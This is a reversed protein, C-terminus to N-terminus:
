NFTERGCESTRFRPVASPIMGLGVGDREMRESHETGKLM